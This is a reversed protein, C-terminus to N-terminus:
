KWDGLMSFLDESDKLLKSVVVNQTFNYKECVALVNKEFPDHAFPSIYIQEIITKLDVKIRIPKPMYHEITNGTVQSMIYLRMENEHSYSVRKLLPVGVGDVLFENPQKSEDFFDVYNVLGMQVLFEDNKVTAIGKCLSVLSTKVAVGKGNDSYLKWMAESEFDNKHWCNVTIGSVIKKYDDVFQLPREVLFKKLNDLKNRIADDTKAANEIKPFGSQMVDLMAKHRGGFVQSLEKCIRKPFLGEFPDSNFFSSLPSFYLTDSDLLDILKDLSMYRWLSFDNGDRLSEGLHVKAM